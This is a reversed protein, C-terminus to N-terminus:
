PSEVFFANTMAYPVFGRWLEAVQETGQVEVAFWADGTAQVPVTGDFWVAGTPAALLQEFVAEGNRYVRLTGPEMWDPAEVRVALTGSTGSTTDGPLIEGDGMDLTARLTTGGAVVVHGARVAEMVADPTVDGPTDADLWVDTRGWGCPIYSYHSDSSGMPVRARGANLMGFWDGRVVPLDVVGSNLLEFTEFDWSWYQEARPEGVTADFQAVSFMGPTRPHNVQTIAGPGARERMRNFLDQTNLPINWWPEAGGNAVSPDPEIPYLNFHGRVITTVEVGPIVSMIDNLGMASALPRYDVQRDHDTMVPLDLGTAACTVLRHEMSLTGDFSPAAHLHPDLSLWGDRPVQENLALQVVVDDGAGVEVGVQEAQSHRWGHGVRVSYTGPIAPVDLTGDATWGWAARSGTKIAFAEQLEDPVISGGSGAEWRVDVVAPVPEGGATIRISISSANPLEQDIVGSTSAPQPPPTARGAAFPLPTAPNAGSLAALQADQAGQAAFPGLRGAGDPLRVAEPHARAVTWAEWDGDPLSTSWAGDRDTMVFGAVNSGDAFWVRAGPVPAGSAETVTGSLEVPTAQSQQRWRAAEASLIDPTVAFSRDVTHTDGPALTVEAHTLTSIGLEGALAGIGANSFTGTAPWLTMTAEGRHGVFGYAALDEDSPGALGRGPAWTWLDEGSSMVGDRPAFVVPEAGDNTFRTTIRVESADPALRYETEIALNLPGLAPAPLEFLGTMYDWTVDTGRTVVVADGGETGDSVVEVTEAEFLRSLGFAVYLDELTDRGLVGDDRVLDADIINGGVDVMGHSRRPGGIIFQVEANYLKIDGPRGEANVGGFLATEGAGPLVVGARATGPAAPASPDFAPPPTPSPPPGDTPCGLLLGAAAVTILTVRM